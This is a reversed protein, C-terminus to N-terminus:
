RCNHRRFNCAKVWGGFEEDWFNERLFRAGSEVADGYIQEGTLAFGQAFNYILRTQSVLTGFSKPERSGPM